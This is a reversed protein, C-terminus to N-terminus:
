LFWGFFGGQLKERSGPFSECVVWVRLGLSRSVSLCLPVSVCFCQAGQFLSYVGKRPSHVEKLARYVEKFPNHVSKFPGIYGMCTLVM